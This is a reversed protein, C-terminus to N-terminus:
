LSHQSGYSCQHHGCTPRFAQTLATNVLPCYSTYFTGDDTQQDSGYHIFLWCYIYTLFPRNNFYLSNLNHAPQFQSYTIHPRHPTSTPVSQLHHTFPTTHQNSSVTPSTHVTHHAQQFQSCTIHPVTHHAPQFQSYTIHPRHPTSTPVSQQHHTFPTTPQNSSVTPSTHVTHHAQKYNKIPFNNIFHM